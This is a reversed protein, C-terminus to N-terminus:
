AFSNIDLGYELVKVTLEDLEKFKIWISPIDGDEQGQYILSDITGIFNLERKIHEEDEFKDVNEQAFKNHTLLLDNSELIGKIDMETLKISLNLINELQEKVSKISERELTSLVASSMHKIIENLSPQMIKYKEVLDKFNKITILSNHAVMCRIDYLDKWLVEFNNIGIHDKFFKEWNGLFNEKLKNIKQEVKDPDEKRELIIDLAKVVEINSIRRFNGTVLEKLDVFDINYIEMDLLNSFARTNGHNKSKKNLSDNSNFKWWQSGVKKIFFRLLYERLLNELENILPYAKQSIERSIEDQLCYRQKFLTSMEFLLLPRLDELLFFDGEIFVEWYNEQEQNTGESIIVKINYNKMNLIYTDESDQNWNFLESEKKNLAQLIKLLITNKIASKNEGNVGGKYNIFLYNICYLKSGINSFYNNKIEDRVVNDNDM